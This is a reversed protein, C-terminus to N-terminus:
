PRRACTELTPQERKSFNLTGQSMFLVNIASEKDRIQRCVADVNRLLSVDSRIFIYEGESNVNKLDADLRDCAEQSRGVIYIRPKPAHRAFERLSTEGIGATAGAFVAVLGAPYTATVKTNSQQVKDLAVMNPFYLSLSPAPSHAFPDQYNKIVSLSVQVRTM